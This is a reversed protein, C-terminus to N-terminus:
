RCNHMAGDLTREAVQEASAHPPPVIALASGTDAAPCWDDHAILQESGIM